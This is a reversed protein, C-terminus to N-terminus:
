RNVANSIFLGPIPKPYFMTSKPPLPNRGFAAMRIQNITIPRTIIGVTKPDASVKDIVKEVEVIYQTSRADLTRAVMQALVADNAYPTERSPKVKFARNGILVLLSDAVLAQTPAWEDRIPVVMFRESLRRMIEDTTLQTKFCRHIPRIEAQMPDLNTVFCLLSVVTGSPSTKLKRMARAIRHHGDAIILQSGDVAQQIQLQEREDTIEWVEHLTGTRETTTAAPERVRAKGIELSNQTVMAWIPGRGAKVIEDHGNDIGPAITQEHVLIHDRMVLESASTPDAEQLNQPHNDLQLIGFIGEVHKKTGSASEFSM